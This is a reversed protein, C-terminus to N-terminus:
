NADASPSHDPNLSVPGDSREKALRYVGRSHNYIAGEIRLRNIAGLMANKTMWPYQSKLKVFLEPTTAGDWLAAQVYKMTTRKHDLRM